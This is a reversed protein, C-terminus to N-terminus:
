ADTHVQKRQPIWTDLAHGLRVLDIPKALYADMGAALCLAEDDAMARATVGIIPTTHETDIERIRRTAEFGDMVPMQCDMLVALYRGPEFNTVAEAGNGAIEATYGLNALLKCAVKQNVRNDEVLLVLKDTRQAPSTESPAAQTCEPAEVVARTM